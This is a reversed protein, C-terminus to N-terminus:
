QADVSFLQFSFVCQKFRPERHQGGEGGSDFLGIVFSPSRTLIVHVTTLNKKLPACSHSPQVLGYM